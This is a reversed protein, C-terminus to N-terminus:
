GYLERTLEMLRNRETYIEETLRQIELTDQAIQRDLRENLEDVVLRTKTESYEHFDINLQEKFFKYLEEREQQENNEM